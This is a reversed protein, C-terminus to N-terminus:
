RLQQSNFFSHAPVIENPKQVIEFTEGKIECDLFLIRPKAYKKRDLTM